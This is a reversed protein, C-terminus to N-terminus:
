HSGMMMDRHRETHTSAVTVEGVTATQNTWSANGIDFVSITAGNIGYGSIADVARVRFTSLATSNLIHIYDAKTSINSGAPCSVGHSITFNGNETFLMTIDENDLDQPAVLIGTTPTYTWNYTCGTTENTSTDTFAIYAPATADTSSATFNAIPPPADKTNQYFPYWTKFYLGGGYCAPGVMVRSYNGTVPPVNDIAINFTTPVTTTTQNRDCHYSSPGNVYCYALYQYDTGGYAVGHFACINAATDETSILSTNTKFPSGQTTGTFNPTYPLDGLVASAFPVLCMLLILAILIRKMIEEGVM